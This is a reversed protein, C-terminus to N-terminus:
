HTGTTAAKKGGSSGSAVVIVGVAAIGAVVYFPTLDGLSETSATKAGPVSPALSAPPPPASQQGGQPSAPQAFASGMLGAALLAVILKKM